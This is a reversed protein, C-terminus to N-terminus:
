RPFRGSRKDRMKDITRSLSLQAISARRPGHSRKGSKTSPNTKPPPDPRPFPGVTGPPGAYRLKAVDASTPNTPSTSM